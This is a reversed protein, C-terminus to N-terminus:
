NITKDVCIIRCCVVLNYNNLKIWDFTHYFISYILTFFFFFDICSSSSICLCRANKSLSKLTLYRHLCAFLIFILFETCTYWFIILTLNIWNFILFKSSLKIPVYFVEFFINISYFHNELAPIKQIRGLKRQLYGSLKIFLVLIQKKIIYFQCKIWELSSLVKLRLIEYKIIKHVCIMFAEIISNTFRTTQMLFFFVWKIWYFSLKSIM